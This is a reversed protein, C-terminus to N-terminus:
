SKENLRKYSRYASCLAVVESLDVDIGMLENLDSWVGDPDGPMITVANHVYARRNRPFGHLEKRYAAYGPLEAMMTEIKRKQNEFAKAPDVGKKVKAHQKWGFGSNKLVNGDTRYALQSTLLDVKGIVSARYTNLKAM